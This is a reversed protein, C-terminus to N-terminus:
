NLITLIKKEFIPQLLVVKKAFTLFSFELIIRFDKYSATFWHYCKTSYFANQQLIARCFAKKLTFFM